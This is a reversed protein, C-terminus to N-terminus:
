SLRKVIREITSMTRRTGVIGVARELSYNDMSDGGEMNRLWFIDRDVLRFTDVENSLDDLLSADELPTSLFTVYLKHDKRAAEDAFVKSAAIEQLEGLSRVLTPVDFGLASELHEAIRTELDAANAASVFSVNGSALYTEINAVDDVDHLHAALDDMSIRRGGVNIARLFAVYADTM